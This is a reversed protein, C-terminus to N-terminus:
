CGGVSTTACAGLRQSRVTPPQEPPRNPPGSPPASQAPSIAWSQPVVEYWEAPVLVQHRHVADRIRDLLLDGAEAIGGGIVVREPVIMTIVNAIGLGLYDAVVDIARLAREDGDRAAAVAAAPSERGAM